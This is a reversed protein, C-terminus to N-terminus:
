GYKGGSNITASIRDHCDPSIVKDTTRQGGYTTKVMILRMIASINLSLISSFLIVTLLISFQM